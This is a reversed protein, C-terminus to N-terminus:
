MGLRQRMLAKAAETRAKREEPTLEANTKERKVISFILEFDELRIRPPNKSFSAAVRRVEAAIQM